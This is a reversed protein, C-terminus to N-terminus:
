LVYIDSLASTYLIFFVKLETVLLSGALYKFIFVFNSSVSWSYLYIFSQAVYSIINVIIIWSIGILGCYMKIQRISLPAEIEASQCKPGLLEKNHLTARTNYSPKASDKAEVLYMDTAAWRGVLQPFWFTDLCQWIDELRAFDGWNLVM